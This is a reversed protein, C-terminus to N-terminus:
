PPRTEDVAGLVSAVAMENGFHQAVDLAFSTCGIYRLLSAFYVDGCTRDALGLRGGPSSSQRRREAALRVAIFANRVTKEPPFGLGLDTAISLGAVLEALRVREPPSM